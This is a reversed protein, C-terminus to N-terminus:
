RSITSKTSMTQFGRISKAPELSKASPMQWRRVTQERHTIYLSQHGTKIARRYDKVAQLVVANALEEYPNVM